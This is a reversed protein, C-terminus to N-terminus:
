LAQLGSNDSAAPALPQLGGSSSAAPALPKMGGPASGSGGPPNVVYNSVGVFNPLTDLLIGMPGYTAIANQFDELYLPTLIGSLESGLTQQQGTVPDKGNNAITAALAPAPALKTLMFDGLLGLRSEGGYAPHALDTVNGKSSTMKGTLLRAFLTIYPKIGSTGPVDARSKGGGYSFTMFNSSTPDMDVSHGALTLGAVILSMNGMYAGFAKISEMRAPGSQRIYWVPNLMKLNAIAQQSSYMLGNLIPADAKLMGKSAGRGTWTNVQDAFDEFVEPNKEPDIGNRIANQAMSDFMSVRMFNPYSTYIRESFRVASSLGLVKSQYLRNMFEEDQEALPAVIREPNAIFLGAAKRVGALPSKETDALWGKYNEPSFAQNVLDVFSKSAEFPHSVTAFASARLPNTADGLTQFLRQSSLISLATSKLKEVGSRKGLVTKAFDSGFAQELLALENRQPITGKLIKTLGTQASLSDWFDFKPNTKLADYLHNVDSQVMTIAQFSKKSESALEGKLKGLAAFYGTQGPGTAMAKEAQTAKAAREASMETDLSSRKTSATKIAGVLDSVIGNTAIDFAQIDHKVPEAAYEKTLSAAMTAAHDALVKTGVSNKLLGIASKVDKSKTLSAFYSSFMKINEPDVGIKELIPAVAEPTKAAVLAKVTASEGGIPAFDLMLNGITGGFALPAAHKDLGLAKATPSNQIAKMSTKIQEGVDGVSQDGFLAKFIPSPTKYGTTPGEMTPVSLGSGPKQGTVKQLGSELSLGIELAGGAISQAAETGIGLSAKPLGLFTNAIEGAPTANLNENGFASGIDASALGGLLTGLEPFFGAATNAAIGLPSAAFPTQPQTKPPMDNYRAISVM